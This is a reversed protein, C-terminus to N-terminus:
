EVKYYFLNKFTTNEFIHSTKEDTSGDVIIIEDPYLTQQNVSKLLRLLSEPRMYTCIILSFRM